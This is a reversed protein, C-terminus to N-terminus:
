HCGHSSPQDHDDTESAKEHNAAQDDLGARSGTPESHSGHSRQSLDVADSRPGEGHGEHTGGGEHGAHGGHGGTHMLLMGGFLGAYLVTSLSLVGFVVLSGVVATGILAPLLWRPRTSGTTAPAPPAAPLSHDHAQATM